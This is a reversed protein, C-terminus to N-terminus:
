HLGNTNQLLGFSDLRNVKKKACSSNEEGLMWNVLNFLIKCDYVSKSKKYIRCFWNFEPFHFFFGQEEGGPKIIFTESCNPQTAKFRRLFISKLNKKMSSICIINVKFLILELFHECFSM